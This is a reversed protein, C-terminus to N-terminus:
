PQPVSFTIRLAHHMFMLRLARIGGSAVRLGYRVEDSKLSQVKSKPSVNM